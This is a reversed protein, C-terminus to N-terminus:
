IGELLNICIDCGWRSFTSREQVQINRNEMDNQQNVLPCAGIKNSLVGSQYVLGGRKISVVMKLHSDGNNGAFDHDQPKFRWKKRTFDWTTMRLGGNKDM